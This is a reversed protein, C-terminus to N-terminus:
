EQGAALLTEMTAQPPALVYECDLFPTTDGDEEFEYAAFGNGLFGFRNISHYEIDFDELDPTEVVQFFALRSGPWMVIPGDARGQKFWSTCPDAWCTRALYARCHEMFQEVVKDKPVIRRIHQTYMKHIVQIFYKSMHTHIPLISGQAVPTFPGTFMFYNPMTPTAIGIYSEPVEQWRDALNIGDLGIIPFQPRFSTDFGTACIIVDVEYENGQQDKFGAPTISHITETFCTTKDGILSELYGNGPTPRRCGVNFNKPIIKDVLRKDGGLKSHMERYSFENAEQSEM